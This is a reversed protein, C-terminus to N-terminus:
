VLLVVSTEINEECLSCERNWMIEKPLAYTCLVRDLCIDPLVREM